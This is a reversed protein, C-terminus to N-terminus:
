GVQSIIEGNHWEPDGEMLARVRSFREHQEPSHANAWYAERTEFVAVVWVEGPDADMRFAYRLVQGAGVETSDILSQFAAANEPRIRMKALTGYM